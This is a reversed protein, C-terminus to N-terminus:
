CNWMFIGSFTDILCGLDCLLAFNGANVKTTLIQEDLRARSCDTQLLAARQQSSLALSIQVYVVSLQDPQEKGPLTNTWFITCCIREQQYDLMFRSCEGLICLQQSLARYITKNQKHPHM